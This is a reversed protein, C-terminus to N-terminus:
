ELNHKRKFDEYSNVKGDVSDVGTLLLGKWDSLIDGAESLCDEAVWQNKTGFMCQAKCYYFRRLIKFDVDVCIVDANIPPNPTLDLSYTRGSELGIGKFRGFRVDGNFMIGDVFVYEEHPKYKYEQPKYEEKELLGILEKIAWKSWLVYDEGTYKETENKIAAITRLESENISM